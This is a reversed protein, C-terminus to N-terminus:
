ALGQWGEVLHEGPGVVGGFGRGPFLNFIPVMAVGALIPAVEDATVVTWSREM